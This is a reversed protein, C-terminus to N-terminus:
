MILYAPNIDTIYIVVKANQRLDEISLFEGEILIYDGKRYINLLNHGIEGNAFAIATALYNRTHLFQVHIETFYEGLNAFRLPAKTIRATVIGINM